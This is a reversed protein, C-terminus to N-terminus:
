FLFIFCVTYLETIRREGEPPVSAGRQKRVLFHDTSLLFDPVREASLEEAAAFEGGGDRSFVAQAEEEAENADM